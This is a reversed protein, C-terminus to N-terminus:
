LFAGGQSFAFAPVAAAMHPQSQEQRWEVVHPVFDAAEAAEAVAKKIDRISLMGVMVGNEIVPLHRRTSEYSPYGAMALMADEVTDQPSLFTVEAAPRMIEVVKRAYGKATYPQSAIKQVFERESVVGICVDGDMVALSGVESQNMKEIMQITDADADLTHKARVYEDDGQAALLDGVELSRVVESTASDDALRRHKLKLEGLYLRALTRILATSTLVGALDSMPPTSSTSAGSRLVPLRRFNKDAMVTLCTDLETEATVFTVDPSMVDGVLMNRPDKDFAAVRTLYDRESFIGCIEGDQTVVVSAINKDAMDAVVVGLPTYRDVYLERGPDLPFTFQSSCSHETRARTDRKREARLVEGITLKDQATAPAATSMPRLNEPAPPPFTFMVGRQVEMGSGGASMSLTRRPALMTPLSATHAHATPLTASSTTAADHKSLVAAEHQLWREMEAALAATSSTAMGRRSAASAPSARPVRRRAAVSAAKRSFTAAM